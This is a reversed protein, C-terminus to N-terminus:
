GDSIKFQKIIFRGIYFCTLLCLSLGILPQFILYWVGVPKPDNIPDEPDILLSLKGGKILYGEKQRNYYPSLETIYTSDQFKYAVTPYAVDEYSYVELEEDIPDLRDEEEWRHAICEAEVKEGNTNLYIGHVIRGGLFWFTALAGGIPVLLYIIKAM